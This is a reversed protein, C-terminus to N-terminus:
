DSRVADFSKALLRELPKKSDGDGHWRLLTTTLLAVSAAARATDKAGASKGRRAALVDAIETRQDLFQREWAHLLPENATVLGLELGVDADAGWVEVVARKFSEVWTRESEDLRLHEVFRAPRSASLVLAEKTGFYRYVTSPSVSSRAAIQEVTVEDFGNASMLDFAVARVQDMAALRNRERLSITM